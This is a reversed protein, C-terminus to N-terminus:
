PLPGPSTLASPPEPWAAPPLLSHGQKVGLARRALSVKRPLTPAGEEASDSHSDGEDESSSGPGAMLYRPLLRAEPVSRSRQLPPSCYSDQPWRGSQGGGEAQQGGGM